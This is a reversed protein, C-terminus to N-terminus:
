YGGPVSDTEGPHCVPQLFGRKEDPRTEPGAEGPLPPVAGGHVRKVEPHTAGLIIYLANPVEKVVEAMAEIAYELGKSPSLLGFTLLVKKGEAQFQDKYYAPDLFPVDPAGHHIMTIKSEPVGYVEQLLKGAMGAQVVVLTSHQCIRSLTQKQGPSPDRLVTHLTTVVPKNLSALM